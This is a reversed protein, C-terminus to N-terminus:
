HYHCQLVVHNIQVNEPVSHGDNTTKGIQPQKNSSYFAANIHLVTYVYIPLSTQIVFSAFCSEVSIIVCAIEPNVVVPNVPNIQLRVYIVYPITRTRSMM